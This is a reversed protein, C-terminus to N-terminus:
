KKWRRSQAHLWTYLQAFTQEKEDCRDFGIGDHEGCDHAAALLAFLRALELGASACEDRGKPNTRPAANGPLLAPVVSSRRHFKM